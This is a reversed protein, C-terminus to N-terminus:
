VYVGLWPPPPHLFTYCDHLLLTHQHWPPTLHPSLTSGTHSRTVSAHHHCLMYIIYYHLRDWIHSSHNLAKNRSTSTLRASSWGEEFVEEATHSLVASVWPPETVCIKCWQRLCLFWLPGRSCKKSLCKLLGQCARLPVWNISLNSRTYQIEKEMQWWAPSLNITQRKRSTLAKLCESEPQTEKCLTCFDTGFRLHSSKRCGATERAESIFTKLQLSAPSFAGVQGVSSVTDRPLSSSHCSCTLDSYVERHSAALSATACFTSPDTKLHTKHQALQLSLTSQKNHAIELMRHHCPGNKFELDQAM